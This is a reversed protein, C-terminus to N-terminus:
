DLFHASQRQIYVAWESTNTFWGKEERREDELARQKDGDFRPILMCAVDVDNPRDAGRLFSGFVVLREVRYALENSRNIMRAREVLELILREATARRLPTAATAMALSQGKSTVQWYDGKATVLGEDKFRALIRRAKSESLKLVNALTLPRILCGEARRM